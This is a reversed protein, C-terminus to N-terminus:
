GTRRRTLTLGLILEYAAARVCSTRCRYTSAKGSGAEGAVSDGSVISVVVPLFSQVSPEWTDLRDVAAEYLGTPSGLPGSILHLEDQIILDPPRLAAAREM